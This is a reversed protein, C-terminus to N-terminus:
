SYLNITAQEIVAETGQAKGSSMTRTKRVVFDKVKPPSVMRHGADLYGDGFLHTVVKIRRLHEETYGHMEFDTGLSTMNKIPQQLWSGLLVTPSARTLRPQDSLMGKKCDAQDKTNKLNTSM